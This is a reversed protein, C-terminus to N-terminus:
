RRRAPHSTRGLRSCRGDRSRGRAAAADLHGVKATTSADDLRRSRRVLGEHDLREPRSADGPSLAGASKCWRLAARRAPPATATDAVGACGRSSTSSIARRGRGRRRRRPRRRRFTTSGDNDIARTSCYVNVARADRFEDAGHRLDPLYAITGGNDDGCVASRVGVGHAAAADPQSRRCLECAKWALDTDRQRNPEFVLAVLPASRWGGRGPPARAAQDCLPTERPPESGCPAARVGLPADADGALKLM